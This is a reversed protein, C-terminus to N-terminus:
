QEQLGEGQKKCYIQLYSNGMRTGLGLTRKNKAVFDKKVRGPKGQIRPPFASRFTSPSDKVRCDKESEKWVETDFDPSTDQSEAMQQTEEKPCDNSLLYFSDQSLEVSDRLPVQHAKQVASFEAVGKMNKWNPNYRLNFYKDVSQSKRENSGGKQMGTTYRDPDCAAGGQEKISREELSDELSDNEFEESSLGELEENERIRQQLQLQYQRERALSEFDSEESDHLGAALDGESAPQKKLNAPYFHPQVFVRGPLQSKNMNCTHPSIYERHSSDVCHKASIHYLLGGKSFNM